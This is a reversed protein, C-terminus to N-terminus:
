PVEVQIIYYTGQPLPNPDTLSDPGGVGPRPGAEPVAIWQVAPSLSDRRWLSYTRNASSDFHVTVPPGFDIAHIRFVSAPDSPDTDAIYEQALSMGKGFRDSADLDAWTQEGTPALGHGHYWTIPVGGTSVFLATVNLSETVHTDQRPNEVSGDSWMYFLADPTGSAEVPSGSAGHEVQQTTLGDLIGGPGTSYTLTHIQIQYRAFLSRDGTVEFTYNEQTSVSTGNELWEVFNWGFAPNASVTLISGDGYQGAGLPSGAEAPDAGLTVTRAISYSRRDTVLQDGFTVTIHVARLTGDVFPYPTLYTVRYQSRQMGAILTYIALLDSAEPADYFAGGTSNAIEELIDQQQIGAGLAITFVPVELSNAHDIVDDMSHSSANDAGDTFVIVCRSREEGVLLSTGEHIGNFMATTGGSSLTEIADVVAQLDATLEIVVNVSSNFEVIAVKDGPQLNGVFSIAADRADAMLQTGMSGSTDFVLVVSIASEGADIEEVAVAVPIPDPDDPRQETVTFNEVTLGRVPAGSRDMIGIHCSITPFDTLDILNAFVDFPPLESRLYPYGENRSFDGDEAWWQRFNWGVFATDKDHPYTMQGTSRAEGAASIALGSRESDWYSSRVTGSALRGILGGRFTDPGPVAGISYCRRVTGGNLYGLLGGHRDSGFVDAHSYSDSIVGSSNNLEGALGGVSLTGEILGHSAAHQLLVNAGNIWGAVGGTRLQGMIIGRASVHVASGGNLQGVIGGTRTSRGIIVMDSAHGHTIESNLSLGAIAGAFEGAHINPNEIHLREIRAGSTYGFLGQYPTEPRNITLNRVTHGAGDLSGVFRLDTSSGGVPEWGTGGNWAVTHALDIDQTLRYHATLDQRMANLGDPTSILFPDEPTGSGPFQVLDPPVPGSIASLDRLVPPSAEEDIMWLTHFNFGRFSAAQRMATSDLGEGGASVTIGTTGTDWYSEFTNTSSRRGVLGGVHSDGAIILGSAHSRYISGGFGYGVLGGVQSDGVMVATSFSDTILTGSGTLYGTLGGVSMTGTVTGHASSHRLDSGTGGLYGLLGGINTTGRVVVQGQVRHLRVPNGYGIVGGAHSSTSDIRGNVTVLDLTASGAAYGAVAGSYQGGSVSVNDLHLGQIQAGDLYGFLGQYSSTPRNIALNRVTFGGGDLTGTFRSGAASAGVPQWGRGDDWVATTALDVDNTLRYHAGLDQRMADLHAPTSLLYPDAATGSGPLEALVVPPPIDYGALDRHVPYDIGETIQWVSTFNYGVFTAQQRMQGSTRGEGYASAEQGSSDVDWYCDHVVGSSPRGVLGGVHSEGSLVEGTSYCRSATGSLFYGILGGVQSNGIVTARSYSDAILLGSNTAYGTLGGVSAGSGAVVGRVASHRVEATAGTLYGTIGGINSTGEVFVQADVLSLLSNATYGVVGGSHSSLSYIGGEVSVNAIRSSGAAYGAVAGSYQGGHINASELHVREVNAGDTYGFLGQYPTTPRSAALNHLTHGAGDFSGTFRMGATASGVPMWGRGFDWGAAPALDIDNALRYHAGLDQHMAALDDPTSLRFPDQTTGSGPLDALLVPQAHPYSLPAPLTPYGLDEEGAQWLGAFNYGAFTAPQHMAATPRGEGLSSDAQGSSEIDWYCAHAIGSGLRGVLGGANSGSGSVPGTSFSRSATGSVFYGILGGVQDTGTVSAHSVADVLLCGSNTVYGALGGVSNGSGTVAGRVTALRVEATAGTTYGILGGVNATGEVVADVDVMAILSVSNYGALGGIESSPSTVTGSAVVRSVTSNHIYGALIGSYRGGSVAASELRLNQVESGDLYGFLGQHTAAPRNLLLNRITHGAGDFTGGFRQTSSGLTMWGEDVNWPPAGLDIDAELRFHHRRHTSGVYRNLRALQSANGIQWPDARTGSGAMFQLDATRPTGTNGVSDRVTVEFRFTHHEDGPVLTYSSATAGAIETFPEVGDPSRLWRFTTGGEAMGPEGAHYQYQGTLTEGISDIGTVSVAAAYPTALAVTHAFDSGLAALYPYSAMGDHGIAWTTTFDWGAFTSALVMAGTVHGTSDPAGACNPQGSADVDWHCNLLISAADASGVLGGVVLGTSQVAGRSYSREIRTGALNGALGGVDNGTGTGTVSGAGCADRVEAGSGQGVLGGVMGTGEVSGTALVEALQSGGGGHFGVLGGVLTTGQVPGGAHSRLVQGGSENSGVLGGTRTTGTVAGSAHSDRIIGRTLSIGVLGGVRAGGSVTGTAFCTDVVGDTNSEGLLGGAREGTGVVAAASHSHEIASGNLSVGALGGIRTRANVSGSSWCSSVMSAQDLQGVLLSSRDRATVSADPVALNRITAGAVYGFLGQYDTTPRDITLNRVAHGGGDYVGLFRSATTSAGIPVWGADENWPAVGLDIDAIQRFHATSHHRVNDLHEATAVLYPEESTGSGGAFQAMADPGSLACLALAAFGYRMRRPWHGALPQSSDPWAPLHRRSASRVPLPSLTSLDM